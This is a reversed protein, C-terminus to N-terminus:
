RPRTWAPPSVVWGILDPSMVPVAIMQYPTGDLVFIGSPSDSEYMAAVLDDARLSLRSTDAATVQGDVGVIFALDIRLRARLNEMASVITAHDRTAM